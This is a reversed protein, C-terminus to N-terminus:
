EGDEPGDRGNDPLVVVYIPPADSPQNDKDVYGLREVYGRERGKTKLYFIIGTMNGDGIGALLKSEALDLNLEVTEEVVTRLSKYRKLYNRVTAPTCSGYAAELLKAAPTVLGASKRLAAEIHHLEFRQKNM